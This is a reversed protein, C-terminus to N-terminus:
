TDGDCDDDEDEIWEVWKKKKKKNACLSHESVRRDHPLCYACLLYARARSGCSIFAFIQNVRFCHSLVVTRNWQWRSKLNQFETKKETEGGRKGERDTSPCTASDFSRTRTDHACVSWLLKNMNACLARASASASAFVTMGNKESNRKSQPSERPRRFWCIHISFSILIEPNTSRTFHAVCIVEDRVRM